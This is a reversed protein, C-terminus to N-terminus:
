LKAGCFKCYEADADHGEKSCEPCAQTTIRQRAALLEVSFVGIPVSIISYGLLMAVAALTRGLGTQPTVDGYGVTTVTVIAWYIGRPISTFDTDPTRGEVVYMSAGLILIIALVFVLFVVIRKGTARLARGLADAETLYHALKFVRFIRVLRLARVVILSQSGAIFISLYTPLVAVLDVIGYFSLAYRLPRGLCILRLAYEITYLFTFVWECVYLYTGWEREVSPISDIIVVVISLLITAILLVDFAKGAPTDAEFILEHLKGRWPALAHPSRDARPSQDKSM